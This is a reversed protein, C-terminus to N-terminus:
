KGHLAAVVPAFAEFEGQQVSIYNAGFIERRELLLDVIQEVTGVLVNPHDGLGGAPIRLLSAIRDLAAAPDDTVATFFPSSEIDLRAFRDGAGDRVFGLRRVAEQRPTRGAADVPDFPVNNISVIDAERGALSLVRKRGGGIMIPPHPKQVPLPLGAYDRATVYEGDLDLPAGACHAKFLAVVEELKSIRQPGPGFPVGMARYEYESWGGGIGFELRGDSLLDLTAAEKMLVGPVHYDACFVRCGVRLSGTVAAAVAMAAIPALHQPPWKAAQAAPGKGLYHDALFLTSYGADEIRTATDRWQAASTAKTAQVAFRFPRTM